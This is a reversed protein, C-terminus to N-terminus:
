RCTTSWNRLIERLLKGSATLDADTWPGTSSAGPQFLSAAEKKDSVAWQAQSLCHKRLYDQWRQSEERDVVGGGDASVSGWETVFLPAGLKIAADAKDRLPQKHTAAYFHLAYALNRGRLPDRAAVDVDQSWKPTGIVILNDPDIARIAAIVKEAYPKIGSSWAVDVPENYIEYIVNPAHGYKRAMESFFAAAQEPYREAHHSHWDIIVYVGNAIAADVVAEVRAKNSADQLFGGGEDVGMAARVLSANWETAFTKVAGANYFREQRWGSNSWFFSPGALAVPKGHQDVVRADEVKLAGHVQVPTAAAISALGSAVLFIAIKKM